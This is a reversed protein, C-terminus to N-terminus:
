LTTHQSSGEGHYIPYQPPPYTHGSTSPGAFYPPYGPQSRSPDAGVHAYQPPWFYPQSPGSPHGPAFFMGPPRAPLVPVRVPMDAVAPCTHHLPHGEIRARRSRRPEHPPDQTQRITPPPVDEGPETIRYGENLAALARKAEHLVQGMTFVNPSSAMHVITEVRDGVHGMQAVRQTLWRRTITRYWQIYRSNVSLHGDGDMPVLNQLVLNDRDQWQAVYFAHKDRWDVDPKGTLTITALNSCDIPRDPIPQQYGFQRLVRDPQQYVVIHYYILPCVAMWRHFQEDTSPHAPFGLYPRWIIQCRQMVDLHYRYRPLRAFRQQRRDFVNFRHGYIAEPHVVDPLPPSISPFRTWAWLQLLLVCGGMDSHSRDTLRSLERYIHALVASGWSFTGTRQFDDLFLLFRAPVFSSATDVFLMGGLIRMILARTYMIRGLETGAHKEYDGYEVRLFGLNLRGGQFERRSNPVLGLSQLILHRFDHHGAVGSVAEGDTPLGLLHHVDELTITVEGQPMHFTQTEPRWREVLASVLAHDIEHNRLRAVDYFGAQRLYPHIQEPINMHDHTAAHRVNIVRDDAGNWVYASVHKEQLTLLSHDMPGPTILCCPSEPFGPPAPDNDEWPPSGNPSDMFRNGAKNGKQKKEIMPALISPMRNNPLGPPIVTIPRPVEYDPLENIPEDKPIIQMHIGPVMNNPLLFKRTEITPEKSPVSPSAIESMFRRESRTVQGSAPQKGRDVIGDRTQIPLAEIRANGDSSLTKKQPQQRSCSEPLTNDELKPKKLPPTASSPASNTLPHLPQSEQGRLHLRKLPQAEEVHLQEEQGEM